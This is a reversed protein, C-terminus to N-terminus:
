SASRVFQRAVRANGGFAGSVALRHPRLMNRAAVRFVAEAQRLAYAVHRHGREEARGADRACTNAAQIAFDRCGLIDLARPLATYQQYRRERMSRSLTRPSILPREPKTRTTKKM